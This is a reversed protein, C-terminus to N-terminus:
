YELYNLSLQIQYRARDTDGDLVYGNSNINIRLPEINEGLDPLIGNKNNDQIWKSLLEYFESNQANQKYDSGFSEISVFNFIIQKEKEGDIYSKVVPNGPIIEIMYEVPESGLWDIHVRGYEDLYPCKLFYNRIAEIM